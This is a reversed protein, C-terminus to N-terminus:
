RRTSRYSPRMPRTSTHMHIGLWNSMVVLVAWVAPSILGSYVATGVLVINVNIMLERVKVFTLVNILSEVVLASVAIALIQYIIRKMIVVKRVQSILTGVLGYSILGPGMVPGSIDAALGIAFSVIVAERADCNLAFFVLLAILLNPRINMETVAITNLLNGANLLTLILLIILFRFWRM